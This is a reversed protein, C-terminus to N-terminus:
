RPVVHAGCTLLRKKRRKGGEGRKGVRDIFGPHSAHISVIASSSLPPSPLSHSARALTPTTTGTFPPLLLHPAQALAITGNSPPLQGKGKGKEESHQNSGNVAM